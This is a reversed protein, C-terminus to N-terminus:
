NHWNALSNLDCGEQGFSVMKEELDEISLALRHFHVASLGLLQDSAQLRVGLVGEQEGVPGVASSAKLM